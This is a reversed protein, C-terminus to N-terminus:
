PKSSPETPNPASIEAVSPAPSGSSSSDLEKSPAAPPIEKQPAPTQADSIILCTEEKTHTMSGLVLQELTLEGSHEVQEKFLKLNKGLLELARLKDWMKLRKSQGINIRNEGQGDYLEETEVAAVTRALADPWQNPPLLSGHEDYALRIDALAIDKLENLISQITWEARAALAREYLDKRIPDLYLWEIVRPYKIQLQKCLDPLGGGQTIHDCLAPFFTPENIKQLTQDMSM